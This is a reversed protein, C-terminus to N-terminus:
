IAGDCLNTVWDLQAKTLPERERTSQAIGDRLNEILGVVFESSAEGKMPTVKADAPVVFEPMEDEAEILDNPEPGDPQAAPKKKAMQRKDGQCPDLPAALNRSAVRFRGPFLLLSM